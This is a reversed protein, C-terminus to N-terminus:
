DTAVYYTTTKEGNSAVVKSVASSGATDAYVASHGSSVGLFATGASLLAAIGLCVAANKRRNSKVKNYM